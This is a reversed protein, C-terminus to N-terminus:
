RFLFNYRVQEVLQRNSRISFLISLLHAKLLKEPPISSRSTASYMSDFLSDMNALATDTM